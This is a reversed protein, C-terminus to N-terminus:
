NGWTATASVVFFGHGSVEQRPSVNLESERIIYREGDERSFHVPNGVKDLLNGECLYNVVATAISEGQSVLGQSLQDALALEYRTRAEQVRQLAELREEPTSANVADALADNVEDSDFHATLSVAKSSQQGTLGLDSASLVTSVEFSDGGGPRECRFQLKVTDTVSFEMEAM